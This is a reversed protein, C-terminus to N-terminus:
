TSLQAALLCADDLDEIRNITELIQETHETPLVRNTLLRFKNELESRRMPHDPSGWSHDVRTELRGGDQLLVMVKVAHRKEHGLADLEPDAEIRIRNTFDLIDRSAIRNEDFQDIFLAGDLVLAAACYFLNMQASTVSDPVYPWGVHRKTATTTRINVERIDGAAITHRLILEKLADITTHNSGCCPYPKFGVKMIEFETGLGKLTDEFDFHDSMTPAFGGYGAELVRDAGTFGKGALIGSLLGSQAAKGAHLRKVMSGYQAAMLGAAQSGALGLAHVMEDVSLGMLRGAAAAAAFAGVTGTPHFGRLLHSTGVAMGVRIGVEYGATIAELLRKGSCCGRQHQAWALVTPIVVSGPHLISRLHLDDLEFGHVMTGNILVANSVPYSESTGWVGTRGAGDLPKFAERLIRCWPLTSGFLGCGVTDLICSKLHAVVEGPISPYSLSGAFAALLRTPGEKM